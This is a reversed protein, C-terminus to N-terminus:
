NNEIESKSFPFDYERFRGDCFRIEDVLRIHVTGDEYEVIAEGSSTWCHFLGNCTYGESKKERKYGRLWMGTEYDLESTPVTEYESKVTVFVPRLNQEM